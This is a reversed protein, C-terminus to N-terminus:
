REKISVGDGVADSPYLVVRDGADLGSVVEATLGNREGIELETLHADGGSERFAAWGAGARFLSSTPVRLVDESEWTIVRVEVRYGDGLANWAERADEFDIVVNVRQEEVGLASIKTFGFPEVRRVIGRLSRDGGWREILVPAGAPVRVADESLFDSVIELRSPDAVEILPEGAAVVASSERLRRLVVGEIPSLITIPKPTAGSGVEGVLTARAQALNHEATRVAFKAASEGERGTDVKLQATDLMEESAIKEEALRQVRDFESQAFRYEAQARSLEAHALGLDAKAGDVRAQAEARTRADLPAPQLTVLVTRDAVVTDGPELEIRLVRGSVPASVMYRNRVRTEGEEDLTVRMPGRDVTALDVEVPAPMMALVILVVVVVGAVGWLWWRKAGKGKGGKGATVTM